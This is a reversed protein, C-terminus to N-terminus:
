FRHNNLGRCSRWLESLLKGLAGLSATLAWVPFIRRLWPRCYCKCWSLSRWVWSERESLKGFAVLQHNQLCLIHTLSPLGQLITLWMERCRGSAPASMGSGHISASVNSKWNRTQRKQRANHKRCYSDQCELTLFAVKGMNRHIKLPEAIRCVYEVTDVM